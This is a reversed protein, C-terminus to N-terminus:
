FNDIVDHLTKCKERIDEHPHSLMLHNLRLLLNERNPNIGYFHLKDLLEDGTSSDEEEDFSTFLDSSLQLKQGTSVVNSLLTVIRLVEDDPIGNELEILDWL